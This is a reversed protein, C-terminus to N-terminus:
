GVAIKGEEVIQSFDAYRSFVAFVAGLFRHRNSRLDPDPANVLVHDFYDDIAPGIGALTRVIDEATGTGEASRLQKVAKRM